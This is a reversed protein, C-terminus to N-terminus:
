RKKKRIKATKKKKLALLSSEKRKKKATKSRPVFEASVVINKGQLSPADVGLINKFFDATVSREQRPLKSLTMDNLLSYEEPEHLMTSLSTNVDEPQMDFDKALRAILDDPHDEVGNNFIDVYSNISDIPIVTEYMEDDDDKEYLIVNEGDSLIGETYKYEDDNDKYYLSNNFNLYREM